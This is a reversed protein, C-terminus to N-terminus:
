KVVKMYRPIPKKIKEVEGTDNNTLYLKGNEKSVTYTTVDQKEFFEEALGKQGEARRIASMICTTEVVFFCISWNQYEWLFETIEDGIVKDEGFKNIFDKTYFYDKMEYKEGDYEKDIPFITQFEKPTLTGMLSKVSSMFQFDSVLSEYSKDKSKDSIILKVSLWILKKRTDLDIDQFQEKGKLSRECLGNLAKLYMSHYDPKEKKIGDIAILKPM